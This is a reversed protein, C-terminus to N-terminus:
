YADHNYVHLHLYSKRYFAFCGVTVGRIERPTIEAVYSPIAVQMMGTAVGMIIKAGTYDNRNQSLVETTVGLYVLLLMLYITKTRGFRDSFWGAFMQGSFQRDGTLITTPTTRWLVLDM